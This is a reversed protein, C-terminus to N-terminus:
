KWGINKVLKKGNNQLNNSYVMNAKKINNYYIGHTYLSRIIEFM